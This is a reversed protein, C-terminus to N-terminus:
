ELDHTRENSSRLQEVRARAAEIGIPHQKAWERMPITHYWGAQSLTKAMLGIECLESCTHVLEHLPAGTLQKMEVIHTPYGLIMGAPWRKINTKKKEILDTVVKYLIRAKKSLTPLADVRQQTQERKSSLSEADIKHPLREQQTSSVIEASTAAQADCGTSSMAKRPAIAVHSKQKRADEITPRANHASSRVPLVVTAATCVVGQEESVEGSQLVPAPMRVVKRARPHDYPTDCARSTSVSQRMISM